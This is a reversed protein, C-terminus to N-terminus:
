LPAIPGFEDALHDLVAPNEDATFKPANTQVRAMTTAVEIIDLPSADANARMDFELVFRENEIKFVGTLRIGPLDEAFAVLVRGKPGCYGNDKIAANLYTRMLKLAQEVRTAVNPTM